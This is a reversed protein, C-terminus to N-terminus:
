LLNMVHLHYGCYKTFNYLEQFSLIVTYAPDLPYFHFPQDQNVLSEDIVIKISVNAKMLHILGLPTVSGPTVQFLKQLDDDKVFSFNRYAELKWKVYKLDVTSTYPIILYFFHGKRDQLLLNKVYIGVDPPNNPHYQFFHQQINLLSFVEFLKVHRCPADVDCGWDFSPTPEGKNAM